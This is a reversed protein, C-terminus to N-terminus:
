FSFRSFLCRKILHLAYMYTRINLYPQKNAAKLHSFENELLIMKYYIVKIIVYKFYIEVSHLLFVFCFGLHIQFM